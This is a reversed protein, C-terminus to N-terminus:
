VKPNKKEATGSNKAPQAVPQNMRGWMTSSMALKMGASDVESEEDPYDQEGESQSDHESTMAELEHVAAADLEEYWVEPDADEADHEGDENRM